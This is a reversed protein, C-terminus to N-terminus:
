RILWWLDVGQPVYGRVWPFLCTWRRRRYTRM